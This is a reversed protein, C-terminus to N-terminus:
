DDGDDPDRLIRWLLAQQDADLDVGIDESALRVEDEYGADVVALLEELVDTVRRRLEDEQRRLTAYRRWLRTAEKSKVVGAPMLLEDLELGLVRAVTVAEDVTIRRPPDGSEIRYIASKDMPCGADTMRQALRDLTLDRAEREEKIRRALHREHQVQRPQKAKPM